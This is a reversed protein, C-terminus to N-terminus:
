ILVDLGHKQVVALLRRAVGNPKMAGAEWRRVTGPSVNLLHAFARPGADNDERLRRIDAPSFIPPPPPYDEIETLLAARFAPDAEVRARVTDDFNRTLAM